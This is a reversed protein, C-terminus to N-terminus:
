WFYPNDYVERLYKLPFFDWRSSLFYLILRLIVSCGRLHRLTHWLQHMLSMCGQEPLVIQLSLCFPSAWSPPPLSLLRGIGHQQIVGLKVGATPGFLLESKNCYKAFAILYCIPSFRSSFAGSRVSKGGGHLWGPESDSPFKEWPLMGTLQGGMEATPGAVNAWKKGPKLRKAIFSTTAGLFM